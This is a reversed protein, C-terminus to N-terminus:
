AMRRRRVLGMGALGALTTLGTWAAAPVPVAVSTTISNHAAVATGGIINEYTAAGNITTNNLLLPSVRFTFTGIVTLGSVVVPTPGAYDFRVNMLGAADLFGDSGYTGGTGGSSLQYSPTWGGPATLVYGTDLNPVDFFSFSDGVQYQSGGTIKMSISIVGTGSNESAFSNPDISNARAGSVSGLIGAIAAALLGLTRLKM